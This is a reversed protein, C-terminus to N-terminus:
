ELSLGKRKQLDEWRLREKEEEPSYLFDLSQKSNNRLM